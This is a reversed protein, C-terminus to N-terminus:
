MMRFDNNDMKTLIKSSAEFIDKNTINDEFEKM